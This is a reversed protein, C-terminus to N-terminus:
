SGCRREMAALLRRYAGSEQGFVYGAESITVSAGGIARFHDVIATLNARHALVTVAHWSGGDATFVPSVTPGRLGAAEGRELVKAAVAAESAGEINATVRLYGEARRHAEVREVIERAAELAAPGAALARLNVVFCGESRIVVGDVLRKLRNERLTAGTATVDIIIDAHGMAPAAELAGSVQPMSFYNVGHSFLFRRALRQAKTAIRLERGSERFEVALDALDAMSEVDVWAEPVAAVLECRGFGLDQLVIETDGGEVRREQFDDYGVFGAHVNAAEVHGTIDRARQFMVEVGEVAPISGVYRRANPRSVAIGCAALFALTPEYMAGDSPIALRLRASPPASTSM